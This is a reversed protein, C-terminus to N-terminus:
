RRKLDHEPKSPRGPGEPGRGTRSEVEREIRGDERALTWFATVVAFIAAMGAALVLAYLTHHAFGEGQVGLGRGGEQPGGPWFSLGLGLLGGVVAGLLAAIAVTGALTRQVGRRTSPDPSGGYEAGAAEEEDVVRAVTQERTEPHPHAPLDQQVTRREGDQPQEAM